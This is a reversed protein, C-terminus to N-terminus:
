RAEVLERVTEYDSMTDVGISRSETDVVIIRGGLEFARLQELGEIRELDSKPSASFRELFERRYVYLGTHKRFVSLAEDLTEEIRASGIESRPYPVPSRSFYVAFGSSDTVVKVVNPDLAEASSAVPESSTSMDAEPAELLANVTEDITEPDIM